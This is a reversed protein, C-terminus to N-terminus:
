MNVPTKTIIVAWRGICGLQQIVQVLVREIGGKVNHSRADNGAGLNDLVLIHLAMLYTPRCKDIKKHSVM